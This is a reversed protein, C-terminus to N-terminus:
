ARPDILTQLKATSEHLMAEIRERNDLARCLDRDAISRDCQEQHTTTLCSIQSKDYLTDFVSLRSLSERQLEFLVVGPHYGPVGPKVRLM